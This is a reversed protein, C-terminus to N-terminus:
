SDSEFFSSMDLTIMQEYENGCEVCKLKLPQIEAQAKTNLIHDRITNFLKSDCNKLLDEIYEPENVLAVPTKVASISQALAKVTLETVDKLARSLASMKETDTTTESQPIQQLIRQNDYQLKNNDSMNKYTMPRFHIEMDGSKVTQSYDVPRIRDLVSRLDVAQDSTHQCAPCQTVFPMDHGYSAIRIAVLLTDLDVSPVAWADKIEPICSEIVNVTAQGTFLADPTRYTIEDIATMPYVALKGTEPLDLTGPPYFQGKSRLDVYIAPQRFYQRLPNNSSM